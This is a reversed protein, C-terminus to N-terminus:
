FIKNTLQISNFKLNLFNFVLQTIIIRKMKEYFTSLNIMLNQIKSDDEKLSSM